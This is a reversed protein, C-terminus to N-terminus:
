PPNNEKIHHQLWYFKWKNNKSQYQYAYQDTIKMKANNPKAIPM